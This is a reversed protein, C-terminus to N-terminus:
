GSSKLVNLKFFLTRTSFFGCLGLELLQWDIIGYAHTIILIILSRYGCDQLESENLM